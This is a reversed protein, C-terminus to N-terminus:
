ILPRLMLEIENEIGLVVEDILSAMRKMDKRPCDLVRFKVWLRRFKNSFYEVVDELDESSIEKEM